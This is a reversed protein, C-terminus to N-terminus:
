ARVSIAASVPPLARGPGLHVLPPQLYLRAESGRALHHANLEGPVIPAYRTLVYNDLRGYASYRPQGSLRSAAQIRRIVDPSDLWSLNGYPELGTLSPGGYVSRLFTDPDLYDAFLEGFTIDWPEGATEIKQFRVPGAFTKIEVDLGIQELECRM